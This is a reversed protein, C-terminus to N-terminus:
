AILPLLHDPPRNAMAGLTGAMPLGILIDRRAMQRSQQPEDNRIIKDKGIATVSLSFETPVSFRNCTKM